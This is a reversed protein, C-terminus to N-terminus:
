FVKRAGDNTAPGDGNSIQLISMQKVFATFVTTGIRFRSCDYGLVALEAFISSFILKFVRYFSDFILFICPVGDFCPFGYSLWCSSSIVALVGFLSNLVNASLRRDGSLGIILLEWAAGVDM